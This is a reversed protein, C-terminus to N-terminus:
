YIVGVVIVASETLSVDFVEAAVSNSLSGEQLLSRLEAM